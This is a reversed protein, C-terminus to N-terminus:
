ITCTTHFKRKAEVYAAHADEPAAFVGLYHKVGRCMISAEWKKRRRTVGLMGSTMNNKYAARVNQANGVYGVERLNTIRNDDREGNIHDIQATPWVGNAVFWALRHAMYRKGEYMLQIYGDIRKTGAPEGAMIGPRPSVVWTVVGTYPDYKLKDFGSM